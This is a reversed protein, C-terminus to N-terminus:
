GLGDDAEKRVMARYKVWTRDAIKASQDMSEYIARAEYIFERLEDKSMSVMAEVKENEDFVTLSAVPQTTIGMMEEVKNMDIDGDPNEAKVQAMVEPSNAMLIVEIPPKVYGVGMMLRRGGSLSLKM